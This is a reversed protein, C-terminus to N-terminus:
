WLRLVALVLIGWWESWADVHVFLFVVVVVVDSVASGVAYNV